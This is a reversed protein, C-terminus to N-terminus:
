GQSAGPGLLADRRGRLFALAAAAPDEGLARYGLEAGRFGTATWGPGAPPPSWPAVYLYPEDHDADGPSVGYAARRGGAEAGQELAADFHEPWLRVPSVDADPRAEAHLTGLVDWAFAYLAALVDAAVPDVELPEEPLGAPPLGALAAADPLTTLTARAVTGDPHEVVLQTGAVRVRGGGPFPPTGFGGPTSELAIETGTAAVRAPAVVHEAVRHLAGRTAAFTPPLPPLPPHSPESM